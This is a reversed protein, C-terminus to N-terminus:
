EVDLQGLRVRRERSVVRDGGIALPEEEVGDDILRRARRQGHDEVPRRIELLLRFRFAKSSGFVCSAPNGRFTAWHTRLAAAKAQVLLRDLAARDLFRGASVVARIRRVNAIDEFPNGDLLM